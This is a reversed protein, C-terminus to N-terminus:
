NKLFCNRKILDTKEETETSYMLSLHQGDYSFEAAIIKVGSLKLTKVRERCIVLAEAEKQEWTRKLLLDRPTARRVISKWGEGNSSPDAVLQTVEGLQRGRSTDVVVHDGVKIQPVSSADFHYSKGTQGFRVGVIIPQM